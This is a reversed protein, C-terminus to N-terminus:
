PPLIRWNELDAVCDIVLINERLHLDFFRAIDHDDEAILIRSSM